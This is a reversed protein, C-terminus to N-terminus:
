RGDLMTITVKNVTSSDKQKSSCEIDVDRKRIFFGPYKPQPLELTASNLMLLVKSMCLRDEAHEQVCLLGIQICRLAEDELFNAQVSEDVLELARDEKWLTWTQFNDNLNIICPRLHM